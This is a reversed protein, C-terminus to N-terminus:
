HYCVHLRFSTFLFCTLKKGSIDVVFIITESASDVPKAESPSILYDLDEDKPVEEEDLEM